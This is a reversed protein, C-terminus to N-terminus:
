ERPLESCCELHLAFLVLSVRVYVCFYLYRYEIYGYHNHIITDVQVM